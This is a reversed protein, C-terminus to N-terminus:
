KFTKTVTQGDVTVTYQRDCTGDGYDVVRLSKGIPTIDVIGAVPVRNTLGCANKYLIPTGIV